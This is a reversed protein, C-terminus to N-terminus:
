GSSQLMNVFASHKQMFKMGYRIAIGDFSIVNLEISNGRKRLILSSCNGFANSVCVVIVSHYCYDNQKNIYLFSEKMGDEYPASTQRLSIKVNRERADCKWKSLTNLAPTLTRSLDTPFFLM